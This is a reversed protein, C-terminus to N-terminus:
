HILMLFYTFAERFLELFVRFLLCIYLLFMLRELMQQFSLM